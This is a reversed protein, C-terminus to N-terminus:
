GVWKGGASNWENRRRPARCAVPWKSRLHCRDADAEFGGPLKLVLCQDQDWRSGEIPVPVGDGDVAVLVGLLRLRCHSRNELEEAVTM